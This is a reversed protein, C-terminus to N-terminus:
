TTWDGFRDPAKRQRQPRQSTLGPLGPPRRMPIVYPRNPARSASLDPETNTSLTLVDTTSMFPLLLNRHLTKSKKFRTGERKVEYVPIDSNPQRVVVYPDKEWRDALKQKGRISVNKVLVRDGPHLVSSRAKEDYRRKSAIGARETAKRAKEYATKLHDRMKVVYESHKSASVTDTPLGLLADIALRPHRGFMLFYPSYGTSEHHTANYAHVLVSVHSKWDAKQDDELTGLMKLLTQNFREVMGNGMAHYPTTRSKEIGALSCLEGILHSEFNPGQDSHIRAPFGYHVIFHEFLVKATTKATQNKTPYAQAYRSFHDTIVLVNEYGGKSRELSLFDICIIEMPYSSQIPVLETKAPVAKRRICRPCNKVMRAIDADMGPWYFREKFLSVTRDRGQHGLDDHLAEFVESQIGEPLVLQFREEGFVPSKRYLVGNLIVLKKWDRLYTNVDLFRHDIPRTPMTGNKVHQVVLSIVIDQSQAKVWDKSSLSSAMLTDNPIDPFSIDPVSDNPLKVNDILPGTDVIAALSLAKVVEQDIENSYKRRSLGDADSNQLGSRYIPKYNYNALAALWRHSTADLKATTHVYTLPNNDTVVEFKGGYLYDHFKETVAWKLALFELKHAPYNREAPKLSRSAFAIVRDKGEQQQYLVAGLGNCSADTHVKFTKTYDAYALVPPNTLIDKIKQFAQEEEQEWKFPTRKLPKKDKAKQKNTPHGILLNNLPRAISAFGKIFRRYYGAFGLFQRVEKISKPAPWSKVAEIKNPDAQIGDASVVHGLYTTKTKFFECKSPKIKLNYDALRQFVADLRELHSDVDHSFIIIDDLYILCDRLNLDGMCREMLRQFTAPANCLGFPMRNCEYFGLGGGVQFATKEKDEEELEVQWYGSKLDLKSFYRSGALLHLTDEVRPIAYADKKTRQNLRRFDICFRITGDKKRVIVVNSSWPSKSERIAGIDLMEQLHEKVEMYIAPPIRRVPEKFPANDTLEIKHRVESTHGLDMSTKPFVSEWREFLRYVKDKQEQTLNSEELDVGYSTKKNNVNNCSDREIGQNISRKNINEKETEPTAQQQHTNELYSGKFIPAERIVKVEHLECLNTKPPIKMIKASLNCLRVPVRANKRHNDLKVVRPCVTARNEYTNELPETVVAEADKHKRVFGTITKTEMPLLTIPRTAKVIGVANTTIASFAMNWTDPLKSEQEEYMQNKIERILNTGIVVPVQDHYETDEVVLAPIQFSKATLSPVTIDIEVYGQYPLNHGSASRIDLNFEELSYLPPVPNLSDRFKAAVTTVM